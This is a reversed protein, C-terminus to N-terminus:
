KTDTYVEVLVRVLQADYDYHLDQVRGKLAKYSVLCYMAPVPGHVEVGTPNDKTYLLITTM